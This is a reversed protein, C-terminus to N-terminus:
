CTFLYVLDLILFRYLLVLCEYILERYRGFPQALCIKHVSMPLRPTVYALCDLNGPQFSTYTTYSLLFSTHNYLISPLFYQKIPYFSPLITTYSLNISPLFYQQIPYLPLFCPQIPYFSPLITKYSILFSPLFYPQIPYFSPLVTTYSLLFSTHNYLISLISPLFYQQIPYFSPLM